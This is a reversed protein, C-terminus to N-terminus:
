NFMHLCKPLLRSIVKTDMIACNTYHSAVPKVTWPDFEPSLSIKQVWGSWVQPEALRRYLPYQTKGPALAAPAHCQGGVGM